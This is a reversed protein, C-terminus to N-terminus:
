VEQWALWIRDRLALYARALNREATDATSGALWVADATARRFDETTMRAMENTMPTMRPTTM